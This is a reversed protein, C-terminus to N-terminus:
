LAVCKTAHWATFKKCLGSKEAAHVQFIVRETM